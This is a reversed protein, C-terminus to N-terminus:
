MGGDAAGTEEAVVEPGVWWNNDVTPRWPDNREIFEGILDTVERSSTWVVEADALHPFRGGGAARYNNCVLKFSRHLDLPSGRYRLDRV